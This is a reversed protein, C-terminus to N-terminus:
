KDSTFIAIYQRINSPLLAIFYNIYTSIYYYTIIFYNILTPYFSFKNKGILFITDTNRKGQRNTRSM